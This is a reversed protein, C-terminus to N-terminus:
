ALNRWFEKGQCEKYYKEPLILKPDTSSRQLKPSIEHLDPVAFVQADKERSPNSIEEFNHEEYNEEEIFDYIKNLTAQPDSVLNDYEIFHLRDRYGKKIAEQMARLCQGIMGKESLMMECRNDDNIARNTMLLSHDIFNPKGVEPNYPNDRAIKLFSALVEDINRVPCLIRANPVVCQELGKIQSPWGRNKDVIVPKPTHWYYAQFISQIVAFVSQQKPFAAYHENKDAVKNIAMVFDMVPSAPEAHIRPNQNLLAGLLTSGSRPLGALFIVKERQM